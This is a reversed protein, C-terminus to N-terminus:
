ANEICKPQEQEPPCEDVPAAVTPRPDSMLTASHLRFTGDQRVAIFLYRFSLPTSGRPSIVDGMCGNSRTTVMALDGVVTINDIAYNINVYGHSINEFAGLLNERSHLYPAGHEGGDRIYFPRPFEWFESQM